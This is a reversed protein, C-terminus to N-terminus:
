SVTVYKSPRACGPLCPLQTNVLSLRSVITQRYNERLGGPTPPYDRSNRAVSWLSKVGSDDCGAVASCRSGHVTTTPTVLNYMDFHHGRFGRKHTARAAITIVGLVRLLFCFSIDLRDMHLM